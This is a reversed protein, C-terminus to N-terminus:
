LTKKIRKTPHTKVRHRNNLRIDKWLDADKRILNYDKGSYFVLVFIM